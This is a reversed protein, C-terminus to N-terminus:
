GKMNQLSYPMISSDLSEILIQYSRNAQEKTMTQSMQNVLYTKLSIMSNKYLQYFFVASHYVDIFRAKLIDSAYVNLESVENEKVRLFRVPRVISAVINHLNEIIGGNIYYKVEAYQRQKVKNIDYILNYKKGNAKIFSKFKGPIQNSFLLAIQASQKNFDQLNMANVEDETKDTLAALLKAAADLENLDQKAIEYVKQYQEVTITQWSIM